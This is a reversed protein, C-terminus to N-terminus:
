RVNMNGKFEGYYNTLKESMATGYSEVPVNFHESSISSFCTVIKKPTSIYLLLQVPFKNDFVICNFHLSYDTLERPHPKIAFKGKYMRSIRKYLEIKENETLVGDESFPQTLLLVDIEEKESVQEFFFFNNIFEKKKDTCELWSKKLDVLETKYKITDPIQNLGTLIIKKVKNGYGWEKHGSLLFRIRKALTEHKAQQYNGLGDELLTFGDVMFLHSYFLHDQGYLNKTKLKELLNRKLISFYVCYFLRYIQQFKKDKYAPFVLKAPLKDKISDPIGDSIVFLTEDIDDQSLMLFIFLTYVSDVVCVNKIKEM